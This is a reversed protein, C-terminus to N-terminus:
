FIMFCFNFVIISSNCYETKVIDFTKTNIYIDLTFAFRTKNEQLSCLSDSLITPLMPRKTDPLYITSVRKSFCEWLDLADIWLSVNSIYISLMVINEDIIKLGFADDFDKSEEPDISIINHDRRDVITYNDMIEGVFYEESKTKIKTIKPPDKQFWLM